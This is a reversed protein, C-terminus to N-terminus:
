FIFLDCVTFFFIYINVLAKRNERFILNVRFGVARLKDINRTPTDVRSANKKLFFLYIM